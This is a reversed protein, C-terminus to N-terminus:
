DTLLKNQWEAINFYDIESIFCLYWYQYDWHHNLNELVVTTDYQRQLLVFALSSQTQCM